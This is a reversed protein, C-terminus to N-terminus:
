DRNGLFRMLLYLFQVLAALAASVYTMAAWTLADKAGTYEQGRLFGSTDLWALARKSADFEVPLTILSFLATVGFAVLVIYMIIPNKMFSMGVLGFMFLYQQVNAAISVIPVLSSRMQLFAYSDAHQVAHGCEHAAVAAAAVNRGHYVDYSLNVTKDQPNYHDTLHGDVQTIRVDQLHNQKLMTAAVEAGSMGNTLGVQAYKSFKSKLVSSLIFGIITFLISIVFLGM